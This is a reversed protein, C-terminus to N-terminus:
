QKRAGIFVKNKVGRLQSDFRADQVQKRDGLCSSALLIIFMKNAENKRDTSYIVSGRKKGMSKHSARKASPGYISPFFVLIRLKCYPGFVRSILPIFTMDARFRSSTQSLGLIFLHWKPLIHMCKLYIEDLAITRSMQNNSCEHGEGEELHWLSKM